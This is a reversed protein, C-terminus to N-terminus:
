QVLFSRVNLRAVASLDGKGLRDQFHVVVAPRVDDVYRGMGREALLAARDLIHGMGDGPGSCRKRCASVEPPVDVIQEQRRVRAGGAPDVHKSVPRRQVPPELESDPGIVAM